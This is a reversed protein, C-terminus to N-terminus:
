DIYGLHHLRKKVRISEEESLVYDDRKAGPQDGDEYTIASSHKM